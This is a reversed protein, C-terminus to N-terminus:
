IKRQNQNKYIKSNITNKLRMCHKLVTAHVELTRPTKVEVEDQLQL